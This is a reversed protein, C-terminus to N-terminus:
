ITLFSTSEPKRRIRLFMWTDKNRTPKSAAQFLSPLRLSITKALSRAVKGQLLREHEGQANIMSLLNSIHQSHSLDGGGEDTKAGFLANREQKASPLQFIADWVAFLSKESDKRGVSLTQLDSYTLRNTKSRVFQFYVSPLNQILRLLM